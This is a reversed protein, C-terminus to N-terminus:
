DTPTFERALAACQTQSLQRGYIRFGAIYGKWPSQWFNRYGIQFDKFSTSSAQVQIGQRGNIYVTFSGNNYTVVYHYWLQRYCGTIVNQSGTYLNMDTGQGGGTWLMPADTGKCWAVISGDGGPACCWLSVSWVSLSNSLTSTIYSSGNFKGAPIGKYTQYSMTGEINYQQGTVAAQANSSLPCYCVYDSPISVPTILSSADATYYSGVSPAAASYTLSVSDSDFIYTGGTSIGARGKWTKQLSAALQVSPAPSSGNDTHWTDIYYFEDTDQNYEQQSYLYYLMHPGGSDNEWDYQWQSPQNDAIWGKYQGQSDFYLYYTTNGDTHTYVPKESYTTTAFYDGNCGSTGAGSVNYYLQPSAVSTCKYIKFDGAVSDSTITGIQVYGATFIDDGVKIALTGAPVNAPQISILNQSTYNSM